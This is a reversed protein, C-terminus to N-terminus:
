RDAGESFEVPFQDPHLAAAIARLGLVVRPGPRSVLDEDLFHIRGDRIATISQWGPRRRFEAEDASPTRPALIVRPNREVVAEESVLPYAESLDEFINRGGALEVLQGLYSAPGATRLPRHWVEYFVTPREELSLQAVRRTVADVQSAIEAILGAARDSNATVEGALRVNDLIGGIDQPEFAVVAIGLETLDRILDYQLTGAAFIVDPRLELIRELSVTERTLGGVQPIRTAEPPYNAFSTVGVVQEGAGVAFLVETCAPALSVIRRVPQPIRVTRDLDDTVELRSAANEEVGRGPPVDARHCGFPILCLGLWLLRSCADKM